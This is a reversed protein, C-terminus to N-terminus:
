GHDIRPYEVHEDILPYKDASYRSSAASVLPDPVANRDKAFRRVGEDVSRVVRGVCGAQSHTTGHRDSDSSDSLRQTWPASHASPPLAPATAALGLFAANIAFFEGCNAM